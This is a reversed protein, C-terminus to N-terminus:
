QYINLNYAATTSSSSLICYLYPTEWVVKLYETVGRMNGVRAQLKYTTIKNGGVLNDGWEDRVGGELM